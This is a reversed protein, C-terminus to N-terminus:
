NDTQMVKIHKLMTIAPEYEEDFVLSEKLDEVAGDINGQKFRLIGRNHYASADPNEDVVQNFLKGAENFDGLEASSIALGTIALILNPNLDLAERYNSIADTYKVLLRYTEARHYFLLAVDNLDNKPVNAHGRTDICEKMSNYEFVEDGDQNTWKRSAVRIGWNLYKLATKIDGGSKVVREAKIGFHAPDHNVTWGTPISFEQKTQHAFDIEDTDKYIIPKPIQNEDPTYVIGLPSQYMHIAVTSTSGGWFNVTFSGNEATGLDVPTWGGGSDLEDDRLPPRMSIVYHPYQLEDGMRMIPILFGGVLPHNGDEIIAKMAVFMRPFIAGVPNMMDDHESLPICEM